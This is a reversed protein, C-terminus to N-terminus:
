RSMEEKIIIRLRRDIIENAYDTAIQNAREVLDIGRDGWRPNRKSGRMAETGSLFDILGDIFLEGDFSRHPSWEGNKSIYTKFFRRDFYVRMKNKSDINYRVAEKLSYTRTYDTPKREGEFGVYKNYWEKQIYKQIDKVVKEGIKIMENKMKKSMKKDLNEIKNNLHKGVAGFSKVKEAM